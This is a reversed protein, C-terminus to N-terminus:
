IKFGSKMKDMGEKAHTKTHEAMEEKSSLGKGCKPWKLDM